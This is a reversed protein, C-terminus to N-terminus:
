SPPPPRREMQAAARDALETGAGDYIQFGTDAGHEVAQFLDDDYQAAVAVTGAFGNTRLQHLATLNNGHFPMSLLVLSVDCFPLGAWLEPDTADGEEVQVGRARLEEVRDGSAELGLVRMGHTDRLREYAAAGVRGMGLVVAQADGVELPRDEPHLRDPPRDPLLRRV